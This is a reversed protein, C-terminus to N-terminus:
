EREGILGQPRVLLVIIMIMFSVAARYASLGMAVAFAEVLGIVLAGLVTGYLNGVGGLILAAFMPLLLDFGMEAKVQLIHGQLTGAIVALSTGVIWTLRIVARIDIGSIRALTPNESTARMMRGMNTRTLFLHLGVVTTAALIVIAIDDPVMRAGPLIEVARPIYFSFYQPDGGAVLHIMNRGMLSIGFAAMILTIRSAHKDRLPRFVLLDVVLVVMATCLISIPIAVLLPWGFKIPGMSGVGAGILSVAALSFYSGTSLIEGHAFNAFRLVNYTMSLGLAGLAILSASLIGDAVYQMM